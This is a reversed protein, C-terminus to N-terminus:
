ASRALTRAHQLTTILALTSEAGQNLNVGDVSSATTAPAATSTASPARRRRQRRPVVRRQPDLGDRWREDGTVAYARACADAMAAVEIPQQDFMPPRDGPGAGGPAPRRCTGTSADRPRAAVAARRARRRPRRTSRAARRGRHAGRRPRRQRLTLRAEPWPWAPDAGPRGSPTSPTPSCAGRARHTAPRRRAGRRRRARRVGDCAALQSRQELGREFASAASQRMWDEPARAAATGFAWMARGWCDEVGRRGRWRGGASRRNRVKGDVGQADVLFRYALRALGVVRRTPVPERCVAVLVRAMDDTCYGHEVRPRSYEAHEFTGIGDSMAVIHAFNPEPATVGDGGDAILLSAALEDYRGAVAPWSLAPALRRCEAAMQELHEPHAVLGRVVEALAAADRQPVVIGAGSGLLEVAHPFATAVVPRGCAVADVLVGSTVQDQSDYPLM